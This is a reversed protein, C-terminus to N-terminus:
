KWEGSAIKELEARREPPVVVRPYPSPTPVFKEQLARQTLTAGEKRVWMRWAAVWDRKVANAGSASRWYDKFNETVTRFDVAPYEQRMAAVDERSPNWDEPLRSGREAKTKGEKPPTPASAGVVYEKSYTHPVPVPVPSANTVANSVANSVGNNGDEQSNKGKNKFNAQRKATKAREEKVKEAAPNYELYDNIQYGGQSEHWLKATVLATVLATVEDVDALKKVQAAPIFGDTLYRACYCLGCVHLWAAQVGVAMIKPHDAFGDDIKLWSM